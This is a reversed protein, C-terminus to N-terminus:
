IVQRASTGVLELLSQGQGGFSRWLFHKLLESSNRYNFDRGVWYYDPDVKKHRIRIILWILRTSSVMVYRMCM